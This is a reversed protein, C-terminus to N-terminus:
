CYKDHQINSGGLNNMKYSFIKIKHGINGMEEVKWWKVRQLLEPKKIGRAFPIMSCKGKETQSMESLKIDEPNMGTM